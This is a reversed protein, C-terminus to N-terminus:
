PMVIFDRKGYEEPKKGITGRMYDLLLTVVILLVGGILVLAYSIPVLDVIYSVAFIIISVFLNEFLNNATSIRVRVKSNTFNNLYQRILVYYPGKMIYQIVFLIFILPVVIKENFGLLLIIGMLLCSTALPIAMFTLTKNRYKKHIRWQNKAAIGSILGLIAFIVGFYQDPMGIEKLTTNRLTQLIKLISVFIANFILLSRLRKSKLINRFSNKVDKLEDRVRIKKNKEQIEEFKTSIFFSIILLVFCIILPLYSNVVFLFGSLVASVADLYYYKSTAKGEIKSFKVGRNEGHEISDYLLDTECTSKIIFSIACLIQSVLLWKFNTAFMIVLIHIALILNALILSKRKGIREILITCPIQVIFKFLVYFAELQLVESAGMGKEITFFLYIIAYYFLLDWSLMRYIPYIRINREKKRKLEKNLEINELELIKEGKEM